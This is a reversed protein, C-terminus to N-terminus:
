PHLPASGPNARLKASIAGFKMLEFPRPEGRHRADSQRDTRTSLAELLAGDSPEEPRFEAQNLFRVLESASIKVEAPLALRWCKSQTIRRGGTKL